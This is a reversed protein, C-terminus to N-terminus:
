KQEAKLCILFDTIVQGERPNLISVTGKIAYTELILKPGHSKTDLVVKSSDNFSAMHSDITQGNFVWQSTINPRTNSSGGDIVEGKFTMSGDANSCQTTSNALALQSMFICLIGSAVILNKM